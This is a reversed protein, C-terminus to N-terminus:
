VCTAGSGYTSARARSYFTSRKAVAEHAPTAGEDRM